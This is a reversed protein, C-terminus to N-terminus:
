GVGSGDLGTVRGLLGLTRGGLVRGTVRGLVGVTHGVGRGAARGMGRARYCGPSIRRKSKQHHRSIESKDPIPEPPCADYSPTFAVRSIM